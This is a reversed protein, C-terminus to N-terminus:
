MDTYYYRTYIQVLFASTTADGSTAGLAMVFSTNVLDTQAGATGNFIVTRKPYANVVMTTDLSMSSNGPAISSHDRQSLVKIRNKKENLRPVFGTYYNGAGTKTTDFVDQLNLASGNPANDQLLMCKFNCGGIPIAGPVPCRVVMKIEIRKLFIKDGIRQSASLGQMIGFLQLNKLEWVANPNVSINPSFNDFYKVEPSFTPGMVMRQRPVRAIAYKRAPARRRSAPARYVRRAMTLATPLTRPSWYRNTRGIQNNPQPVNRPQRQTRLPGDARDQAVYGQRNHVMGHNDRSRKSLQNGIARRLEGGWRVAERSAFDAGQRVLYEGAQQGLQFAADGANSTTALAGAEFPVLAM